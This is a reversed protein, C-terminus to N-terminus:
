QPQPPCVLLGLLLGSGVVCLFSWGAVKWGKNWDWWLDVSVWSFVAIVVGVIMGAIGAALGFGFVILLVFRVCTVLGWYGEIMVWLVGM